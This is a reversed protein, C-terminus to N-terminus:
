THSDRMGTHDIPIAQSQLMKYARKYRLDVICFYAKMHPLQQVLLIRDIDNQISPMGNQITAELADIKHQLDSREKCLRLFWDPRDTAM